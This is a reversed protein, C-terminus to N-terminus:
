DINLQLYDLIGIAELVPCIPCSEPYAGLKDAAVDILQESLLEPEKIFEAMYKELQILTEFGIHTIEVNALPPVGQKDEKELPRKPRKLLFYRESRIDREALNMMKLLAIAEDRKQAQYESEIRYVPKGNQTIVIPEELDLNAANQKEIVLPKM